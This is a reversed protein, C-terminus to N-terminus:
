KQTTETYLQAIPFLADGTFIGVLRTDIMIVYENPLPAKRVLSSIRADNYQSRNCFTM